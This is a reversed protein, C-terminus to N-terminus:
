WMRVRVSEGASKAEEEFFANAKNRFLFTPFSVSSFVGIWAKLCLYVHRLKKIKLKYLLMALMKLFGALYKYMDATNSLIKLMGILGRSYLPRPKVLIISLEYM